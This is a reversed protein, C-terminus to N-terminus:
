EAELSMHRDVASVIQVNLQPRAIKRTSWGQAAYPPNVGSVCM